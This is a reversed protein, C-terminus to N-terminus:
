RPDVYKGDEYEWFWVMINPYFDSGAVGGSIVDIHETLADGGRQANPLYIIGQRNGFDEITWPESRGLRQPPRARGVPLGGAGERGNSDHGRWSPSANAREDEARHLHRSRGRASGHEDEGRVRQSGGARLIRGVPESLQRTYGRSESVDQPEGGASRSGPPRPRSPRSRDCSERRRIRVRRSQRRARSSWRFFWRVIHFIPEIVSQQVDEWHTDDSWGGDHAGAGWSNFSSSGRWIRVIRHYIGFTVYTGWGSVTRTGYGGRGAGPLGANRQCVYVPACTTLGSPDIYSLPSNMAYSYLNWQQGDGPNAVIPDPSLFRGLLPDYLRGNM